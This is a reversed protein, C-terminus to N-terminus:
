RAAVKGKYDIMSYGGRARQIFYRLLGQANALKALVGFGAGTLAATGAVGKGRYHSYFRWFLFAYAALPLLGGPGLLMLGTLGAIPVAAGYALTSFFASRSDALSSRGHAMFRQALAQGARVSRRWWQGFRTMEMAHAVMPEAIRWTYRGALYLRIGFESDEGAIFAGDFGGVRSFDSARVLMIGGLQGFDTIPGAHPSSWELAALLGYVNSQANTEEVPGVIIAVDPKTSLADWAADLFGCRLVCDGDIFFVADLAPHAAMLAAFGANRARAACMGPEAPLMLVPVGAVRAIEPSGDHSASDVYLAPVSAPLAALCAPLRPAENRGIVVIGLSLPPPAAM